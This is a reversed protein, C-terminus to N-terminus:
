ICAIRGAPVGRDGTTRIRDQDREIKIDGSEISACGYSTISALQIFALDNAALKDHHM